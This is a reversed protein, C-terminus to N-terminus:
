DAAVPAAAIWWTPHAARLADAAAMAAEGDEYIGFCTAGSGSMRALRCGDSAGLAAVADAIAPSLQTAPAELDNRTSELWAVLAGVDEFREPTPPPPPNDKRELASFVRPTSLGGGPNVLTLWFAPLAPGASLDEGVGRMWLTQSAMCVPVDAGLSLCIRSLAEADPSLEWLACLARLAAAADASGGGVGSAVPLRKDLTLAAGRPKLDGTSRAWADLAEAARLVLNDGGADLDRAFPGCIALSLGRGPEAAVDDFVNAFTALSDLLHYGDDRRGVVHLCLNVKARARATVIRGAGDTSLASM